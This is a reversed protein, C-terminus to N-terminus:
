PNSYAASQGFFARLTGQEVPGLGINTMAATWATNVGGLTLEENSM